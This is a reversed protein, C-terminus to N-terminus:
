AESVKEAVVVWWDYQLGFWHGTESSVTVKLGLLKELVFRVAAVDNFHALVEGIRVNYPDQSIKRHSIGAVETTPPTLFNAGKFIFSSPMPVSLIIHGGPATVRVLDFLHSFFTTHNLGLYYSSNWAVTLDFASDSFPLPALSGEVWTLHPYRARLNGIIDQSIEVGTVEFGENALFASNEGEGCGVDLATGAPQIAPKEEYSGRIIRVLGQSPYREQLRRSSFHSGWRARADYGTPQLSDTDGAGSYIM